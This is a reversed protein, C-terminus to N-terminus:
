KPNGFKWIGDITRAIIAVAVLGYMWPSISYSLALLQAVLGTLEVLDHPFVIFYTCLVAALVTMRQRFSNFKCM